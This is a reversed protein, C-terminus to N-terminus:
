AMGLFLQPARFQLRLHFLRFAGTVHHFRKSQRLFQFPEFAPSLRL